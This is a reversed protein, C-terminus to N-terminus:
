VAERRGSEKGRMAPVAPFCRRFVPHLSLPLLRFRTLGLQAAANGSRFRLSRKRPLVESDFRAPPRPSQGATAEAAPVQSRGCYSDPLPRRKSDTRRIAVLESEIGLPPSSD